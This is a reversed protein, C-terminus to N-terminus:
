FTESAGSGWQVGNRQAFEDIAGVDAVYDYYNEIINQFQVGQPNKRKAPLKALPQQATEGKKAGSKKYGMEALSKHRYVKPRGRPKKRSVPDKVLVPAVEVPNVEVGTPKSISLPTQCSEPSNSCIESPPMLTRPLTPLCPQKELFKARSQKVDLSLSQLSQFVLDITDKDDASAAVECIAEFEGM